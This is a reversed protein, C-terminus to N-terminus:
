YKIVQLEETNALSLLVKLFFKQPGALYSPLFLYQSYLDPLKYEMRSGVYLHLSLVLEVFNDELRWAQM